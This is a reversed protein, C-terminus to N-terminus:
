RAGTVYITSANYDVNTSVIETTIEGPKLLFDADNSLYVEGFDVIQDNNYFVVVAQAELNYPSTNTAYVKVNGVGDDSFKADICESASHVDYTNIRKNVVIDYDYNTANGSNPFSAILAYTEGTNMCYADSSSTEMKRGSADLSIANMSVLVDAANDNRVLTFVFMHGTDDNSSWEELVTIGDSTTFPTQAFSTISMGMLMSLTLIMVVALRFKKM